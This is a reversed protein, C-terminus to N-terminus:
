GPEQYKIISAGFGKTATGLLLESMHHYDTIMWLGRGECALLEDSKGCHLQSSDFGEGEDSVRLVVLDSCVGAEITVKRQRNKELEQPPTKEKRIYDQRSGARNGDFVANAYLEGFACKISEVTKEDYSGQFIDAEFYKEFIEEALGATLSNTVVKAYSVLTLYGLGKVKQLFAPSKEIEKEFFLDFFHANLGDKETTILFRKHELVIQELRIKEQNDATAAEQM